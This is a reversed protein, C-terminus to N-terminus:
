EFPVVTNLDPLDYRHLTCLASGMRLERCGNCIIPITEPAKMGSDLSSIIKKVTGSVIDNM